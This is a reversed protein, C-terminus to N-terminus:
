KQVEINKMSYYISFIVWMFDCLNKEKVKMAAYGEMIYIYRLKSLWEGIYSM